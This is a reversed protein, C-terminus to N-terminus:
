PSCAFSISFPFLFRVYTFTVFNLVFVLTKVEEFRKATKPGLHSYMDFLMLLLCGSQVIRMAFFGSLVIAKPNQISILNPPKSAELNLVAPM